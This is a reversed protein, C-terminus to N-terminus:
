FMPIEALRIARRYPISLLFNPEEMFFWMIHLFQSCRNIPLHRWLHELKLHSLEWIHKVTGQQCDSKHKEVTPHRLVEGLSHLVVWLFGSATAGKLLWVRGWVEKQTSLDLCAPPPLLPVASGPQQSNSPLFILGIRIEEETRFGVASLLNTIYICRIAEPLPIVKQEWLVIQLWIQSLIELGLHDYWLLHWRVDAFIM